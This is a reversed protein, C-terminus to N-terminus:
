ASLELNIINQLHLNTLQCLSAVYRIGHGPGCEINKMKINSSANVISICDDGVVIVIILYKECCKNIGLM